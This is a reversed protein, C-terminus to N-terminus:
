QALSKHLRPDLVPLLARGLRHAEPRLMDNPTVPDRDLVEEAVDFIQLRSYGATVMSIKSTTVSIVRQLVLISSKKPIEFPLSYGTTVTYGPKQFYSLHWSSPATAACTL